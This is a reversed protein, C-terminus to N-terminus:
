TKYREFLGPARFEDYAYIYREKTSNFATTANTLILLKLSVSKPEVQATGVTLVRKQDTITEKVGFDVKYFLNHDL